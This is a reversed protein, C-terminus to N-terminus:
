RLIVQQTEKGGPNSIVIIYNGSHLNGLNLSVGSAYDYTNTMRLTNNFDYVEVKVIRFDDTTKSPASSLRTSKKTIRIIGTTPNPSINYNSPAQTPSACTIPAFGFQYTSTGCTNSADLQLVLSTQQTRFFLIAIDQDTGNWSPQPSGVNSVYSWNPYSTYGETVCPIYTDVNFCVGNESGIGSYLQLGTTVRPTGGILKTAGNLIEATNYTFNLPCTSNSIVLSIDAVTSGNNSITTPNSNANVNSFTFSTGPNVAWQYASVWSPVNNAQFVASSCITSVSQFTLPPKARIVPIAQWPGYFM